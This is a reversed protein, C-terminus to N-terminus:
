SSNLRTEMIVCGVCAVCNFAFARLWRVCICNVCVCVCGVCVCVCAICHMCAVCLSSSSVTIAVTTIPLSRMLPIANILHQLLVATIPLFAVAGGHHCNDFDASSNIHQDHTPSYLHSMFNVVQCILLHSWCRTLWCTTLTLRENTSSLARHESHEAMCQMHGRRTGAFLASDSASLRLSAPQLQMCDTPLVSSVHTCALGIWSSVAVSEQFITDTITREWRGIRAASDASQV